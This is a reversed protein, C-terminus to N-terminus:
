STISDSEAGNAKAGKAPQNYYHSYYSYSYYDLDKEVFNAVFGALNCQNSRLIELTHSLSKQTAREIGAVLLVTDVQHILSQADAMVGIPPTDVIVYDYAAEWEKLLQTMKSSSLLAIPNPVNSGATIIDLGAVVDHNVIEPWPQDSSIAETLGKQNPQRTLKHLKPKRMDADVLLVRSGLDTLALALNYSTTSKGESSTSSTMVLSKIKGSKAMLYSLNMAIARFAETFSSYRYSYGKSIGINAENSLVIRPEVVKPVAGLLPLQTIQKIEDILKVRTDLQHLLWAILVGAFGASALALALGRQINPSIPKSPLYPDDLIKWPSAEEALAIQLEQKRRLLYDVAESKVELQRQLEAYTEQLQPVNQFQNEVRTRAQSTGVIQSELLTIENRATLLEQGLQTLISGPRSVSSESDLNGGVPTGTQTLTSGITPTSTPSSLVRGSDVAISNTIAQDLVKQSIQEGFVEQARKRLEQDIEDRQAKLNQMVPFNAKFDTSRTLYQTELDTLQAALGSYVGDQSLVTTALITDPNQGLAEIQAAVQAYRTKARELAIRTANADQELSQRFGAVGTAYTNPDVLNNQQRFRRIDYAVKDMELRSEPLQEDIFSIANAAQSRQKELSYEVYINGLAKLIERARQPDSDVFSIQLVDAPANNAVAQNIRLKSIVAQSSLGNFVNPYKEIAQTILSNSKLVLIETSLGKLSAFGSSPGPTTGPAVSVADQTRPNELLISTESRYLPTELLTPVFMGAFVVSGLALAPKWRRFVIQKLESISFGTEQPPLEIYEQNPINNNM